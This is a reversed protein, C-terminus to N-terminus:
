FAGTRFLPANEREGARPIEEREEAFHLLPGPLPPAKKRVAGREPERGAGEDRPSLAWAFRNM